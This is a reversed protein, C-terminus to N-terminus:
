RGPGGVQWLQSAVPVLQAGAILVIALLRLTRGALRKSGRKSLYWRNAKEGESEAYAQLKQLSEQVSGQSWDLEPFAM